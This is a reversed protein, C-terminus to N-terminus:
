NLQDVNTVVSDVAAMSLISHSLGKLHSRQPKHDVVRGLEQLESM